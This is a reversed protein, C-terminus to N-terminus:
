SDALQALEDDIRADYADRPTETPREEDRGARRWRRLVVVLAALALIGADLALVLANSFAGSKPMARIREGYRGVLDAEIATTTEGSAARGEIEHRLETAVPSDHTALTGNWCCPALLAGELATASPAATSSSSWTAATLAAIACVAVLGVTLTLKQAHMSVPHFGAQSAIIGGDPGLNESTSSPMQRRVLIRSGVGFGIFAAPPVLGCAEWRLGVIRHM